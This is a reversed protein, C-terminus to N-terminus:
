SASKPYSRSTPKVTTWVKNQLFEILCPDSFNPLHQINQFIRGKCDESLSYQLLELLGQWISLFCKRIQDSTVSQTLKDDLIRAFCNRSLYLLM